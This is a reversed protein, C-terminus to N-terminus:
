SFRGNSGRKQKAAQLSAVSMTKATKPNDSNGSFQKNADEIGARYGSDWESDDGEDVDDVDRPDYDNCYHEEIKRKCHDVIKYKCTRLKQCDSDHPVSVVDTPSIEVMLLHGGNGYTEAYDYTGAHFGSSCGLNADDCVQNRNMELVEGINNSFRGSYWDTYDDRVGKYALFNGEDTIPMQQHELFRYLGEIARRSPNLMLKELFKVISKCPHGGRMFSLIKDVTYNHIAEGKYFVSGEAVKINGDEYFYHEVAKEVDFLGELKEYDEDKLSKVAEDFAPHTSDMTLPKGNLIVTLNEGENM